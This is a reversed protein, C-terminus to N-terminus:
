EAQGDPSGAGEEAKAQRVVARFLEGLERESLDDVTKGPPLLADVADRTTTTMMKAKTPFPPTPHVAM